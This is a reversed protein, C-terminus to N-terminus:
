APGAMAILMERALSAAVAGTPEDVLPNYEVLDGALVRGRLAVLLEAIEDFDPGGPEPDGVGPAVAPNLLDLDLSIYLEGPHELARQLLERLDPATEASLDEPAPARPALALVRLGMERIRAGVTAHSFRGDLYSDRADLHADLWLVLPRHGLEVLRGLSPLSVLHDGGLLLYPPRLNIRRLVERAWEVFERGFLWPPHIDGLDEYKM